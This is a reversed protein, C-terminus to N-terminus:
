GVAGGEFDSSCLSCQLATILDEMKSCILCTSPIQCVNPVHNQCRQLLVVAVSFIFVKRRVLRGCTLHLMVLQRGVLFLNLGSTGNLIEVILPMDNDASGGTVHSSCRNSGEVWHEPKVM